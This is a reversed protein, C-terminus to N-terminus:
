YIESTIMASLKMDLEAISEVKYTGENFSYPRSGSMAWAKAIELTEAVVYWTVSAPIQRGTPESDGGADYRREHHLGSAVIKFVKHDRVGM